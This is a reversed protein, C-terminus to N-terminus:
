NEALDLREITLWSRTVASARAAALAESARLRDV